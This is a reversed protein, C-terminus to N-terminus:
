CAGGSLDSSVNAHHSDIGSMNNDDARLAQCSMPNEFDLQM